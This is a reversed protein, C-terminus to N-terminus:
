AKTQRKYSQEITKLVDKTVEIKLEALRKKMEQRCLKWRFKNEIALLDEGLVTHREIAAHAESAAATKDVFERINREMWRRAKGAEALVTQLKRYLTTKEIAARTREDAAKLAERSIERIRFELEMERVLGDDAWLVPALSMICMVAVSAIRIM